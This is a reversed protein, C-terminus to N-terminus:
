EYLEGAITDYILNMTDIEKNFTEIDIGFKDIVPITINEKNIFYAKIDSKNIIEKECYSFKEILKKQKDKELESLMILTNLEKIFFDSHTTILIRIGYNCLQVLLRLLKRQNDPHLSLEPEDIILIDNPSATHAIYTYLLLLSKVSSSSYHMPFRKGIEQKGNAAEFMVSRNDVIYKGEIISYFTDLVDVPLFSKQKSLQEADRITTINDSISIAYRSINRLIEKDENGKLEDVISNKSSDLEKQFIAIGSRESTMVTPNPFMTFYCAHFLLTASLKKIDASKQKKQTPSITFKIISSNSKRESSILNGGISYSYKESFNPFISSQDIIVSPKKTFFGSDVDFVRHLESNFASQMDTTYKELKPIIDNLDIKFETANEIDQPIMSTLFPLALSRMHKIYGYIANCLITKSTNNNGCIITFKGLELEASRLTGIENLRFKM